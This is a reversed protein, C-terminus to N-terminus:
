LGSLLRKTEQIQDDSEELIQITTEPSLEKLPLMKFAPAQDLRSVPVAQKHRIYSHLKAVQVIDCMDAPYAHTRQWDYASQAVMIIDDSFCWHTLVEKGAEARCREIVWNEDHGEAIAPNAAIFSLIAVVGIDHLLGALMVEEASYESNTLMRTIVFSIAAVEVSHKWAAQMQKKVVKSKSHFLDRMAFSIVLQQTINLGLRVIANQITDCKSAGQYLPSNAARILKAAIAPDANVIRAIKEVSVERDEMLKRTKLAVEPLSPILLQNRILAAKFENFLEQSESEEVSAVEDIFYSSTFATAKKVNEQIAELVDADIAFVIGPEVVKVSYQRPRLRAIQRKAADDSDTIVFRKGDTSELQLTGHLLFYETSDIDGCELLKEGAITSRCQVTNALLLLQHDDLGDFASFRKLEEPKVQHCENMTNVQDCATFRLTLCRYRKFMAAVVTIPVAPSVSDTGSVTAM